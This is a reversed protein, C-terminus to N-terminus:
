GVGGVQPVQVRLLVNRGQEVGFAVDAQQGRQPVTSRGGPTILEDGLVAAEREAQGPPWIAPTWATRAPRM